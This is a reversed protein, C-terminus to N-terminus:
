PRDLAPGEMTVDRLVAAGATDDSKVAPATMLLTDIYASSPQTLANALFSSVLFVGDKGSLRFYYGVSGAAKKGLTFTAKSNDYYTIEATATPKDFGFAADDGTGTIKQLAVVSTVRSIFSNIATTNIPLKEYGKAYLENKGNLVLEVTTDGQTVTAASGLPPLNKDDSEERTVTLLTLTPDATPATTVNSDGTNTTDTGGEENPATLLLVSLAGVLLAVVVVSIILNRLRKRM